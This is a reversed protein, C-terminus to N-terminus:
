PTKPTPLDVPADTKTEKDHITQQRHLAYHELQLHIHWQKALHLLLRNYETRTNYTTHLRSLHIVYRRNLWAITASQAYHLCVTQKTTYYTASTDALYQDWRHRLINSLIREELLSALMHYYSKKADCANNFWTRLGRIHHM